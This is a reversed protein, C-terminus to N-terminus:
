AEGGSLRRVDALVPAVTRGAWGSTEGDTNLAFLYQLKWEVAALDPAPLKMLDDQADTWDDLMQDNREGLEDVRCRAAHAKVDRRHARLSEISARARAKEQENPFWSLGIKAFMEQEHEDPNISRLVVARPIMHFATLDVDRGDPQAAHWAEYVRDYAAYDRDFALKADACRKFAADWARRDAPLSAGKAEGALAVGGAVAVAGAGYALAGTGLRLLSRRTTNTDM